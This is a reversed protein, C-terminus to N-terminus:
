RAVNTEETTAFSEFKDRENIGDNLDAADIFSMERRFSRRFKRPIMRDTRLNGDTSPLFYEGGRKKVPRRTEIKM